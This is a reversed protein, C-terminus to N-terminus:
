TVYNRDPQAGGSAVILWAAVALVVVVISAALAAGRSPWVGGPKSLGLVAEVDLKPKSKEPDGADM